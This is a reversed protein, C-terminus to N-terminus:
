PQLAKMVDSDAGIKALAWHPYPVYPPALADLMRMEDDSLSVFISALNDELQSLKSAGILISSVGPRNLLWAICLQPISIEREHAMAALEEVIAYAREKDMPIFDFDAIRGGGGGPNKRTYRGSLFGGALPSWVVIGIGNEIAFPVHEIELDRGLLSYYMQAAIMPSHGQGRQREVMSAATWTPLNSYGVYRVYGRDVVHQLGRLQEDIPTFPDATHLSLVDIYDTGLRRLCAEVAEIIRRYSLGSAILPASYRFAVKTSIVVEGRKKGLAKGLMEESQGAAYADASDFFNIGAELSRAVMRNADDQSTKWIAGMPGSGKGFTMTGLALRSVVLGTNGLRTYKM